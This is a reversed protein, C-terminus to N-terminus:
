KMDAQNKLKEEESLKYIEDLHTQFRTTRDDAQGIEVRLREKDTSLDKIHKEKNLLVDRLSVNDNRAELIEQELDDVTNQLEDVQEVYFQQLTELNNTYKTNNDNIYTVLQQVYVSLSEVTPSGSSEYQPQQYM